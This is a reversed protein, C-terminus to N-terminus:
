PLALVRRIEAIVDPHSLMSHGAPVIKESTVGDLHSSAYAVVGDSSTALPGGAGRDGIISHVSVRPAFRLANLVPLLPHGPALTDISTLTGRTLERQFAPVLAGPNAADIRSYLAVLEPPVAALADGIRGLTNGALESGRHPTAVFIVRRVFPRATWDLIDSVTAIDAPDGRLENPLRTFGARWIAGGADTILTKALLGGMSHGIVVLPPLEAPGSPALESAGAPALLARLEDIRRRLARASYLFPASTPYLYHWVQYRRRLEPDGWIENTLAAWTLPTSALGHVLLVPTKRPDYPEMLYLQEPRTPRERSFGAFWSASLESTRALLAAFPVTFDAALPQLEGAVLAEEHRLSDLLRVRVVGDDAREALASIARTIAEPPYHAELAEQQRNRRLGVMAVGAGERRHRPLDRVAFGDAPGLADFYDPAYAGPGAADFALAGECLPTRQVAPQRAWIALLGGLAKEAVPARPDRLITACLEVPEPTRAATSVPRLRAPPSACALAASVVVLTRAAARRIRHM